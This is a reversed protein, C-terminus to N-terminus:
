GPVKQGESLVGCTSGAVHETSSASQRADWPAYGEGPVQGTGQQHQPLHSIPAGSGAGFDVERGPRKGQPGPGHRDNDRRTGAATTGFLFGHQLDLVIAMRDAVWIRCSIAMLLNTTATKISPRKIPHEESGLLGACVSLGLGGSGM